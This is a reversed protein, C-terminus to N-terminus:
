MGVSQLQSQLVLLDKRLPYLKGQLIAQLTDRTERDFQEDEELSTRMIEEIKLEAFSQENISIPPADEPWKHLALMADQVRRVLRDFLTIDVTLQNQNFRGIDQMSSLHTRIDKLRGLDEEIQAQMKEAIALVDEETIDGEMRLSQEVTVVAGLCEELTDFTASHQGLFAGIPTRVAEKRKQDGSLM